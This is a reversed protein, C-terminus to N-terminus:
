PGVTGEFGIIYHQWWGCFFLTDFYENMSSSSKGGSRSMDQWEKPHLVWAVARFAQQARVYLHDKVWLHELARHHGAGRHLLEWIPGSGSVDCGSRERTPLSTSRHSSAEFGSRTERSQSITEGESASIEDKLCWLSTKTEVVGVKFGKCIECFMLRWHVDWGDWVADQLNLWLSDLTSPALLWSSPGQQSSGIWGRMKLNKWCRDVPKLCWFVELSWLVLRRKVKDVEMRKRRQM